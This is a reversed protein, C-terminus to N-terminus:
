LGLQSRSYKPTMKSPTEPFSLLGVWNALLCLAYGLDVEWWRVSFRASNPRAHHNNQFGEGFVLWGVLTNNRSNDETEFNRYGFRHALANVMWGQVPHSMIGLFYAVGIMWSNFLSGIAVALAVHALYPLFWLNKRNLWSVEFGLDEVLSTVEPDKRLLRVVIKKYSFLQGPAVGLVGLHVPSHPDKATDSYRHHLRHMCVWAKPDLGTIWNGLFAIWPVAGPRLTVARHALGRHYLVTIFFINLLYGAALFLLSIAVTSM